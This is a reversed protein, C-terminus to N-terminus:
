FIMSRQLRQMTEGIPGEYKLLNDHDDIRTEGMNLVAVGKGSDLALKALRFASFVMLSSGVILMGDSSKVLSTAMEHRWPPVNDGFFTVDPKLMGVENRADCKPCVPVQFREEVEVEIDGDPRQLGPTGEFTTHPPRGGAAGCVGSAPNLRELEEQFEKRTTRYTCNLCVVEHTTGHLELVRKSGALHHLRDVNQTVIGSVKGMSELQSLALHARNPRCRAFKEWGVMSRGWYRKRTRECSVFKQHMVPKFGTSYAGQPGRYDPIGSETSIGAGTVVVLENRREVFRVLEQFM